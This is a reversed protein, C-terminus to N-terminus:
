QEYAIEGQAGYDGHLQVREGHNHLQRNKHVLKKRQAHNIKRRCQPNKRQM